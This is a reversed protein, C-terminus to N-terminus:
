FKQNTKKVVTVDYAEGNDSVYRALCAARVRTVLHNQYVASEFFVKSDLLSLIRPKGNSIEIITKNIVEVYSRASMLHTLHIQHLESAFNVAIISAFDLRDDDLEDQTDIQVLVSQPSLQHVMTINMKNRQYEPYFEQRVTDLISNKCTGIIERDLTNIKPDVTLSIGLFNM